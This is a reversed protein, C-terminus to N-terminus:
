INLIYDLSYNFIFLDIDFPDIFFRIESAEDVVVVVFIISHVIFHASALSSHRKPMICIRTDLNKDSKIWTHRSEHLTKLIGECM